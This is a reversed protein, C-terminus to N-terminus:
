VQILQEQKFKHSVLDSRACFQMLWKFNLMEVIELTRHLASVRPGTIPPHPGRIQLLIGWLKGVTVSEVGKESYRYTLEQSREAPFLNGHGFWQLFQQTNSSKLGKNKLHVQGWVKILSFFFQGCGIKWWKPLSTGM